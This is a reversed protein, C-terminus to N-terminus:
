FCELETTNLGGRELLRYLTKGLLNGMCCCQKYLEKKSMATAGRCLRIGKSVQRCKEISKKVLPKKDVVNRKAAQIHINFYKTEARKAVKEMANIMCLVQGKLSKQAVIAKLCDEAYDKTCFAVLLCCANAYEDETEMLATVKQQAVFTADSNEENIRILVDTSAEALKADLLATIFGKLIHRFM